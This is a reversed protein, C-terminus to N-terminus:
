ALGDTSNAVLAKFETAKQGDGLVLPTTPTNQNISATSKPLQTTKASQMQTRRSMVGNMKLKQASSSSSM